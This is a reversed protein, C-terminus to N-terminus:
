RHCTAYMTTVFVVAVEDDDFKSRKQKAMTATKKNTLFYSDPFQIRNEAIVFIIKWQLASTVFLRRYVCPGTMSYRIRDYRYRDNAKLPVSWPRLRRRLLPELLYHELPTAIGIVTNIVKRMMGQKDRLVFVM